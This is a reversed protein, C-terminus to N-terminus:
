EAVEDEETATAKTELLAAVKRWIRDRADYIQSVPKGLRRAQEAPEDVRNEWQDLLRLALPDGALDARLAAMNEEDMAKRSLGALRGDPADDITESPIEHRRHARGRATTVENRVMGMLHRTVAPEDVDNWAAKRAWLKAIASQIADGAEQETAYRRIFNMLLKYTRGWDM